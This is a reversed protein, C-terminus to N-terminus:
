VISGGEEERENYLVGEWGGHRTGTSSEILTNEAFFEGIGKGVPFSLGDGRMKKPTCWWLVSEGLITRANAIPGLDYPYKFQRNVDASISDSHSPFLVYKAFRGGGCSLLM